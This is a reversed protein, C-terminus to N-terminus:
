RPVEMRDLREQLYKFQVRLADIHKSVVTEFIQLEDLKKGEQTGDFLWALFKSRLWNM